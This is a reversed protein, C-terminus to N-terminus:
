QKGSPMMIKVKIIAEMGVFRKIGGKLFFMYEGV